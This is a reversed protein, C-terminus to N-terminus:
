EVKIIKSAEPSKDGPSRQFTVTLINGVKLKKIADIRRFEDWTLPIETKDELRLRIPNKNLEISSIKSRVTTTPISIDTSPLGHGFVGLDESGTWTSPLFSTTAHDNHTGLTNQSFSNSIKLPNHELFQRFNM